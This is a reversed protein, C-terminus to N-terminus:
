MPRGYGAYMLHESYQTTTYEVGISSVAIIFFM